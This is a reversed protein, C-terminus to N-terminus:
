FLLPAGGVVFDCLVQALFDVLEPLGDASRLLVQLHDAAEDFGQGAEDAAGNRFNRSVCSWLLDNLARAFWTRSDGHISTTDGEKGHNAEQQDVSDDEDDVEANAVLLLVALVQSFM